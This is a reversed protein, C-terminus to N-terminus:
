SKAPSSNRTTTKSKAAALTSDKSEETSDKPPKQGRTQRMKVEKVEVKGDAKKQAKETTRGKTTKDESYDDDAAKTVQTTTRKKGM